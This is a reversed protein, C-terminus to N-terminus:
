CYKEILAALIAATEVDLVGDYNGPRYHMQFARLLGKIGDAGTAASIDYGFKGLKQVVDRPDVGSLGYQQLYRAKAEEEYWAGIGAEYLEHWPFLPGPDSKRMPAIDSHGVVNIPVIAPYRQLIDKALAKVAEIQQPDYPLFVLQGDADQHSTNVIEIGISTDNLNSRGRWSSVGAHYARDNEDVLNFVQVDDFGAQRYTPDNLEPVVYHVSVKPGTLADISGKFSGATYHMVLFRIRSDFATARYRTSDTSM